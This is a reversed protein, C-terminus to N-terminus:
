QLHHFTEVLVSRCVKVTQEQKQKSLKSSDISKSIKSSNKCGSGSKSEDPFPVCLVYVTQTKKKRKAEQTQRHTPGRIPFTFRALAMRARIVMVFRFLANKNGVIPEPGADFENGMRGNCLSGPRIRSHHSSGTSRM